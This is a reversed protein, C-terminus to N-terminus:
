QQILPPILSRNMTDDAIAVCFGAIRRLDRATLGLVIALGVDEMQSARHLIQYEINQPERMRAIVNLALKFDEDVFAQIAEEQMISVIRSMASIKDVIVKDTKELASRTQNNVVREAISSSHYGIRNLDRAALALTVCEQCDRVGVKASIFTSRSALAIQRITVRYQRLAEKWKELVEAALRSDCEVFSTVADKQMSIAYSATKQILSQVPGLTPDVMVLFSCRNSEENDIEFGILENRLHKLDRKTGLPIPGDSVVDIRTSGQMYYTMISYKLSKLDAYDGLNLTVFTSRIHARAPYMLLAGNQRLLIMTEGHTLGTEEIWQKPITLIYSGSKVKQLTRRFM